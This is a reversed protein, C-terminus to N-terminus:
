SSYNLGKAGVFVPVVRDALQGLCEALYTTSLSGDLQQRFQVNVDYVTQIRAKCERRIQTKHESHSDYDAITIAIDYSQSVDRFFPILQNYWTYRNEWAQMVTAVGFTGAPFRRATSSVLILDCQLSDALRVVPEVIARGLDTGMSGSDDLIVVARAAQQYELGQKVTGIQGFKSLQMLHDLVYEAKDTPLQALVDIFLGDSLEQLTAPLKVLANNVLDILTDLDDDAVHEDSGNDVIDEGFQEVPIEIGQEKLWTQLETSHGGESLADAVTGLNLANFIVGLKEAPNWVQAGLMKVLFIAQKPTKVFTSLIGAGIYKEPSDAIKIIVSQDVAQQM